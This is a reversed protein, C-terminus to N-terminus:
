YLLTQYVDNDDNIANAIEELTNLHAPASGTLANIAASIESTVQSATPREGLGTSVTNSDAKLAFLDTFRQAAGSSRLRVQAGDLSVHGRTAISNM